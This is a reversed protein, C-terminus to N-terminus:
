DCEIVGKGAQRAKQVDEQSVGMNAHWANVFDRCSEETGSYYMDDMGLTAVVYDGKVKCKQVELVRKRKKKGM